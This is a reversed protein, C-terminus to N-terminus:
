VPKNFEKAVASIDLINITQDRNLDAIMNWNPDDPTSGFALAVMSVDLIDVTGDNNLDSVVEYYSLDLYLQEPYQDDMVPHPYADYNEPYIGINHYSELFDPVAFVTENMYKQVLPTSFAFAEEVSVFGSEDDDATSDCLADTFYYTWVGGIIPLGEEELGAWAVEGASCHGFSIHPKPDNNVPGTFEGASCTDIM